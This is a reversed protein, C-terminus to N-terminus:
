PSTWRSPCRVTQPFFGFMNLNSMTDAWQQEVDIRPPSQCGGLALVAALLAAGSKWAKAM